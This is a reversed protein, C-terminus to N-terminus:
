MTVYDSVRGATPHSARCTRPIHSRRGDSRRQDDEATKSHDGHGDGVRVPIREEDSFFGVSTM